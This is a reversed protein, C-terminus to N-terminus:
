NNMLSFMSKLSVIMKSLDNKSSGGYVYLDPRVLVFQYTEFIKNLRGDPDDDNSLHLYEIALHDVINKAEKSIECRDCKTIIVFKSRIVEDLMVTKKDITIRPQPIPYGTIRDDPNSFIGKPIHPFRVGYGTSKPKYEKGEAAACFGEIIEGITITQAVTWKAHPYREEKFTTLIKKSAKNQLILDLKWAINAVDRIGTGM